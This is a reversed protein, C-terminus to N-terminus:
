SSRIKDWEDLTNLDFDSDILAALVEDTNTCAVPTTDTNVAHEVTIAQIQELMAEADLDEIALTKVWKRKREIRWFGSYDKEYFVLMYSTKFKELSAMDNKALINSIRTRVYQSLTVSTKKGNLSFSCFIVGDKNPEFSLDQCIKKEFDAITYKYKLTAEVTSPKAGSLKNFRRQLRRWVENDAGKVMKLYLLKGQIVAQMNPKHSHLNQKLIYHSLFKAYADAEGHKEWIYLLNDLGRVYRRTVNVRDSVILGTVEQRQSKKQVRTKKENISFNQGTIIDVLEKQFDGDKHFVNRNSSFTIDDAYRSYRLNYKKALKYLKRDLNRCVINTLIPSCPSGQPLARRMEGDVIIDTCCLGAIADAITDNFNFPPHKLTAWVRSKSISPFFDKLDTNFVYNMGIHREANDVVSKEPVFGTVYDPAEYFAQLIRNTYTLFSKLLNKPASIVRFGGSKKPIRFEKYSKKNRQPNIFYNLHPMIFPYGKDGLESMKIKNLLNLLDHTTEMKTAAAVIAEKTMPNGRLFPTSM